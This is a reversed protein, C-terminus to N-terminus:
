CYKQTAAEIQAACAEVIAQDQPVLSSLPARVDGIEVGGEPFRAKRRRLAGGISDAM